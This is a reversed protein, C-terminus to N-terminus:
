MHIYLLIIMKSVINLLYMGIKTINKSIDIIIIIILNIREKKEKICFISKSNIKKKYKKIFDFEFLKLM